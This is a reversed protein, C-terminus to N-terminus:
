KKKLILREFLKVVEVVIVISFSAALVILWQHSNLDAVHFLGNLGPILVVIAMSLLSFLIAFNFYKNAFPNVKFISQYISKVNFANVLQMLGLTMFAMTLADLHVLENNGAHDPYALALAYVSLVTLSQVIGQWIIASGVGGSM